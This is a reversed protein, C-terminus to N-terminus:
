TGSVLKAAEIIKEPELRKSYDKSVHAFRIVGDRGVVYVAPHPLKHHKRGSAAELDIKYENKYKAVLEEAVTFSIGLADCLKMDSDSLLEYSPDVKRNPADRLKSPQDPSIALLQVGMAKLDDEIDVLAALHANCYPCWGGRYFILVAPKRAVAAVLDLASGDAKHLTAAPLRDGEVIQAPSAVTESAIAQVASMALFSLLLRTRFHM